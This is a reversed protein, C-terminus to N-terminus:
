LLSECTLHRDRPSDEGAPGSFRRVTVPPAYGDNPLLSTDPM